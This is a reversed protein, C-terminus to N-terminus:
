SPVSDELWLRVAGEIFSARDRHPAHGCGALVLRDVTGGSTRALAEIQDLTGYEDDSGQIALAPARVDRVADEINWARFAPDLWIDNWGFFTRDVDRHHRAMRERLNEGYRERIAAISSVSLEEVFLHPAELVLASVASPHAGAYILAISAGDSHGFLVPREIALMRLLEPLVTLAEDHMYRVPRRSDLPDSQGNGYRSYVVAGMKCAAAVRQPFDRWLSVSGLGEHLFVITPRAPPAAVHVVELARGAV